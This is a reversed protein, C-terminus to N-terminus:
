RSRPEAEDLYMFSLFTTFLSVFVAVPLVPEIMVVLGAIIWFGKVQQRRRRYSKCLRRHSGHSPDPRASPMLETKLVNWCVQLLWM